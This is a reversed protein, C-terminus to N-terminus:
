RMVGWEQGMGAGMRWNLSTRGPKAHTECQVTQVVLVVFRGIKNLIAPTLHRSVLPNGLVKELTQDVM